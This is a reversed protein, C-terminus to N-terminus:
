IALLNPEWLRVTVIKSSTSWLPQSIEEISDREWKTKLNREWTLHTWWPWYFRIFILLFSYFPFMFYRCLAMRLFAMLFVFLALLVRFYISVLVLCTSQIVIWIYLFTVKLSFMGFLSSGKLSRDMSPPLTPPVNSIFLGYLGMGFILM